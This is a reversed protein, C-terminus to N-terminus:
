GGSLAQMVYVRSDSKLPVDWNVRDGLLKNDVFVAVHQRISSQDDLVYGRLAPNQRFVEALAARLSNATVDIGQCSVHRALNSTFEIRPM